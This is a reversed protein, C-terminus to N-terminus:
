DDAFIATLAPQNSGIKGRYMGPTNFSWSLEGNADVVIVGGTGGVPLLVDKIVADAAAKASVGQYKVRACIDSAVQYRIFYEGHGTASVACSSNDAYNGAGIIPSDGIRGYRKGTMGGTSTAAALNGNSDIAVAGVTGMQWNPDRVLGAQHPLAGEAAKMRKLAEYRFETNFYSNDVQELGKEVAFQEAGVGSLMVHVSETMVKHALLIPNKITRVGAVAGANLTAGDMISADLEHQEDWTYVAGKGANFLPNDELITVAKIAADLSSGGAQLIAYGQELALRLGDHYAQEQEPSLNAREITGAGGHIVLGVPTDAVAATGTSLGTTLAAAMLTKRM